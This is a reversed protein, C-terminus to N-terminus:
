LSIKEMSSWLRNDVHRFFVCFPQSKQQGVVIMGVHPVQVTPGDCDLPLLPIVRDISRVVLLVSCLFFVSKAALPILPLLQKNAIVM